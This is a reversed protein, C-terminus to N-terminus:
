GSLPLRGADVVRGLGRFAASIPVAKFDVRTRAVVNGHHEVGGPKGRRLHLRDGGLEVVRLCCKHQRRADWRGCRFHAAERRPCLHRRLGGINARGQDKRLLGDGSTLDYRVHEHELLGTTERGLSATACHGPRPRPQTSRARATMKDFPAGFSPPVPTMKVQALDPTARALLTMQRRGTEDNTSLARDQIRIV